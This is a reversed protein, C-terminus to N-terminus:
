EYGHARVSADSDAWGSRVKVWLELYVKVGFQRELDTRAESAIRKVREGGAGILIAKHNDSDVLVTAYVRHLNGEEEYKDITVTSRYPLEDGVLRFVKERVTEAALFRTSRDTFDDPDFLAQGEPMHSRVERMLDDLQEHRKASVPVIASFAREQSVRAIFPLLQDKPKATDSKTITLIVPVHKPLLSLVKRDEAGFRLAEVVFLICDVDSLATLVTRNLSRNLAGGHRTQYGPTDVFIVQADSTSVIGHIRHRTTQAKDATISVKQGVLANVLTSKGVNPRGVVAVFGTRFAELTSVETDSM